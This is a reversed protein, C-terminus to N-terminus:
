REIDRLAARVADVWREDRLGATRGRELAEDLTRERFLGQYTAYLAASRDGTLDHILIPYNIYNELVTGLRRPANGRLDAPERVPIQVYRLGFDSAWQREAAVIPDEDTARLNVITRYGLNHAIQLQERSPQGAATVGTHVPTNHSLGPILRAPQVEPQNSCGAILIVMGFLPARGQASARTKTAIM